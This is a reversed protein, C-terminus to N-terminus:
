SHGEIAKQKRAEYYRALLKRDKGIPTQPPITTPDVDMAIISCEVVWEWVINIGQILEDDRSEEEVQGSRLLYQRRIVHNLQEWRPGSYRRLLEELLAPDQMMQLEPITLEDLPGLEGERKFLELNGTLVHGISCWRCGTWMAAFAIILQSEIPGFRKELMGMVAFASKAWRLYGGVGESRVHEEVFPDPFGAFATSFRRWAWVFVRQGATLSERRM